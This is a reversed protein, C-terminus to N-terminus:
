YDKINLFYTYGICSSLCLEHEPLFSNSNTLGVRHKISKRNLWKLVYRYNDHPVRKRYLQMSISNVSKSVKILGSPNDFVYTSLTTVTLSEMIKVNLELLWEAYDDLRSSPSDHDIELGDVKIGFRNWEYKKKEYLSILDDINGLKYLRFLITISKQEIKYPVVGIEQYNWNEDINGQYVVLRSQEEAFRFDSNRWVWFGTDKPKLTLLFLLFGCGILTLLKYKDCLNCILVWRNKIFFYKM